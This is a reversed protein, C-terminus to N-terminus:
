PRGDHEVAPRVRGGGLGHDAVRGREPDPRVLHRVDLDVGVARAGVVRGAARHAAEARDLGAVRVLGLHVRQRRRQPSSGTSIRTRLATECPETSGVPWTISEGAGSAAISRWSAAVAGARSTWQPHQQGAPVAVGGVALAHPPADAVAHADLVDAEGLAEVVVRGGPDPQLDDAALRDGGHVGGRGLDALAQDRQLRLDRPGLEADLVTVTAGASVM